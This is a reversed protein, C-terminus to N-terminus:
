KKIKMKEPLFPLDSHLDHFDKPCENDAEFTYGKKSDKDYNKLFKKDFKSVDKEM